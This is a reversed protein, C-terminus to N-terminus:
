DEAWRAVLRSIPPGALLVFLFRGMQVAMIFSLNVNQSAAAIIAISDMGGPSTALYATLPDIGWEVHLVWALGGCFLMLALISLVVQPLARVASRLLARDFKLGITWGILMYACGMLWPPLELSLGGGLHAGAGALMGGLFFPAPLRLLKGGLGGAIALLLTLGFAEPRLPPFWEMAPLEVGSTDVWFRALLAAALTVFIVRLYQMFAVLRPDAGFAGAMLVMATAAGPASGWVATTGPLIKWRSVFFGLLSSAAVTTLVALLLIPWIDIFSALVTLELSGGILLGVFTQAVAFVLGSVGVRGGQAGIVVAALMPGILLAAPLAYHLMFGATLATLAALLLWQFLRPLTELPGPFSTEPPSDM